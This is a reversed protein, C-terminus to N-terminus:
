RQRGAAKRVLQEQVGLGVSERIDGVGRADIEEVVRRARQEGIEVAVGIHVEDHGRARAEDEEGVVPPRVELLTRAEPARQRRRERCRVVVRVAVEVQVHARVHRGVLLVARRHGILVRLVALGVHEQAVVAVSAPRRSRRVPMSSRLTRKLRAAAHSSKSSSPVLVEVDGVVEALLVEIAVVTSAEAVDAALEAREVDARAHADRPAVDVAVAPHVRYTV